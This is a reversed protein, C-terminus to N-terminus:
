GNQIQDHGFKLPNIPPNYFICQYLIALFYENTKSINMRVSVTKLYKALKLLIKITIVILQGNQIQDHRFEVANM